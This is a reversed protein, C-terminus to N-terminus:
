GDEDEEVPPPTVAECSPHQKAQRYLKEAEPVGERLNKIRSGHSPHTSLLEPPQDGSAKSMQQWLDVSASPKFGARAMLDLGIEDAESEQSRSFPLLVGVQAGLGLLAMMSRQDDVAGSAGAIINVATLGAMTAYNASMRANSHNAIVHGVEHGIIAALQHQNEAVRLLGTYVGIKGGPLAFANVQDSRFVTVEWDAPGNRGEPLAAIIPQAVCDVYQNVEADDSVPTEEKINAYAEEGMQAMREEPFLSLQQRGTPSTACGTVFVVISVAICARKFWGPLGMM